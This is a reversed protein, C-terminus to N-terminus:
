DTGSAFKLKGEVDGSEGTWVDFQYGNSSLLKEEYAFSEYGTDLVAVRPSNGM